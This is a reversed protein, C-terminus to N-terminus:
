QDYGVWPKQKYGQYVDKCLAIAADTYVRDTTLLWTSDKLLSDAYSRLVAAHYKKEIQGWYYASDISIMLQRRLLEGDNGPKMWFLNNGNLSYCKNVLSPYVLKKEKVSM